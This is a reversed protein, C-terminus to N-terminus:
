VQGNTWPHKIKTLRHVSHHARCVDDFIRKFADSHRHRNTFQILSYILVIHRRYPVAAILNRLFDAADMKAAKQRKEVFAFKSSAISPSSSIFSAMAAQVEAMDVYVYGAPLGLVEQQLSTSIAAPLPSIDHRAFLPANIM